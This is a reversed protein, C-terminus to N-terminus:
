WFFFSARMVSARFLSYWTQSSIPRPRNPVTKLHVERIEPSDKATFDMSLRKIEPSERSEWHM